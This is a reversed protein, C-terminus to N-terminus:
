HKEPGPANLWGPPNRLVETYAHSSRELTHWHEGWTSVINRGHLEPSSPRGRPMQSIGQGARRSRSADALAVILHMM